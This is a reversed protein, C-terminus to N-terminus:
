LVGLAFCIFMVGAVFGVAIGSYFGVTEGQRYSRPSIRTISVDELLREHKFVDLLETNVYERM